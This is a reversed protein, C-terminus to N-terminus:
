SLAAWDAIRRSAILELAQRSFQRFWAIEGMSPNQTYGRNQLLWAQQSGTDRELSSTHPTIV